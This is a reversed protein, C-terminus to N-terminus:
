DNQKWGQLLLIIETQADKATCLIKYGAQNWKWLENLIKASYLILEKTSTFQLENKLDEFRKRDTETMRVSLIKHSREKKKREIIIKDM